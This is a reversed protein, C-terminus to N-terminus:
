DEFDDEDEDEFDDEFDDEDEDEFDDEDEFEYDEEEYDGEEEEDEEDEDEEEEEEEEEEEYEDEDIALEEAVVEEEPAGALFPAEEEAQARFQAALKQVSVEGKRVAAAQALIGMKDLMHKVAPSPQAGVSLWYLAREADIEVTAPETRPNYHGIIEIFKGDRPARSDTVVVRYHPQKKAGTRRLRIKVM